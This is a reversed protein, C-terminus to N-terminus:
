SGRRAAISLAELGAFYEALSEKATKNATLQENLEYWCDYYRLFESPLVQRAQKWSFAWPKSYGAFHIIRLDSLALNYLRRLLVQAPVLFNFRADLPTVKGDFFHNLVCQDGLEISVGPADRLGPLQLLGEYVTPTLWRGSVSLVGSNFSYALPRGYPSSHHRQADVAANDDPDVNSVLAQLQSLDPAASFDAELDFLFRVDGMCVTDVDLFVVRDLDSLSFLQLSGLRLSLSRSANKSRTLRAGISKLAPDFEIFEIPCLEQLASCTTPSVADVFAIVRDSFWPNHRLFGFLCTRAGVAFREDFAIVLARRADNPLTM